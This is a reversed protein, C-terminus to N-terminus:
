AWELASRYVHDMAAVQQPLSFADGARVRGAGGMQSRLAGDGLVRDLAAALPEARPPVALGAADGLIERTPGVDTAVVPIGMAMAEVIPRGFGEPLLSPFAVVDAAALVAPVDARFGTVLVRGQLGRSAAASQLAELNDMPLGLATKVRGRASARYGPGVGGTVLVLRTRPRRSQLRQFADLLVWHGKARQVSGLAMIVQEDPQIGLASRAARPDAPHFQELDVANYVVDVRGDDPFCEAVSRSIAVVRRSRRLIFAAHWARLVPNPGLVERVVWIVPVGERHAAAAWAVLVSTNLHLLDPRNARLYTRAQRVAGPFTRVFRSLMRVGLRAHASYFLAGGTPVVAVALGADRALDVAGGSETFVVSPLYGERPLAAVLTVLSLPAGGIGGGQHVALLRIARDAM